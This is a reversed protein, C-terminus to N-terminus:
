FGLFRVIALCQTIRPQTRGTEWNIVTWKSVGIQAAVERQLLGLELRRQKVHEGLTQPGAPFPGPKPARRTIKLFPLFAVFGQGQPQRM